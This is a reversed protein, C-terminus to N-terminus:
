GAEVEPSTKQKSLKDLKEQYKTYREMNTDLKKKLEGNNEKTVKQKQTLETKSLMLRKINKMHTVKKDKVTQMMNGIVANVNQNREEELLKSLRQKEEWSSRHILVIYTIFLLM